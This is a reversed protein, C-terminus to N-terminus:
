ELMVLQADHFGVELEVVVRVGLVELLERLLCAQGLAHELDPKLIRTGFVSATLAVRTVWVVGLLLMLVLLLMLWM